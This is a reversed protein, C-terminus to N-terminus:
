RYLTTFVLFGTYRSGHVEPLLGFLELLIYQLPLAIGQLLLVTIRQFTCTMCSASRPLSGTQVHQNKTSFGVIEILSTM